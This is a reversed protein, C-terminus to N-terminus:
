NNMWLYYITISLLHLDKAVGFCNLSRGVMYKDKTADGKVNADTIEKWWFRSLEVTKRETAGHRRAHLVTFHWVIVTFYSYKRRKQTQFNGM